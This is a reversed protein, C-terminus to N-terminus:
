PEERASRTRQQAGALRDAAPVKLQRRRFPSGPQPVLLRDVRGWLDEPPDGAELRRQVLAQAIAASSCGNECLCIVGRRGQAFSLTREDCAPCRGLYQARQVRGNNIVDKLHPLLERVDAGAFAAALMRDPGESM